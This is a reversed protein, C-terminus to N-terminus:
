GDAPKQPPRTWHLGYRGPAADARVVQVSSERCTLPHAAVPETGNPAYRYSQVSEPAPGQFAVHQVFTGTRATLLRELTFEPGEDQRWSLRHETMVLEGRRLPRPFIMEAIILGTEPVERRRGIRCGILPELRTDGHTGLEHVLPWSRVGDHEARLVMRTTQAVHEGAITVVDHISLRLVDRTPDLRLQALARNVAEGQSFSARVAETGDSEDVLTSRLRGDPLQLIRELETVAQLSSHRTPVRRGTQWYSLTAVSVPLGAKALKGSLKELSIGRKHIARSLTPAFGDGVVEPLNPTPPMSGMMAGERSTPADTRSRCRPTNVPPTPATM